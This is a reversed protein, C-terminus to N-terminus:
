SEKNGRKDAIKNKNLLVDGKRDKSINKENEEEQTNSRIAQVTDRINGWGIDDVDTAQAYDLLEDLDFIVYGGNRIEDYRPDIFIDDDEIEDPDDGCEEAVQVQLDKYEGFENGDWDSTTGGDRLNIIDEALQEMNDYYHMYYNDRDQLTVGGGNNFIIDINM